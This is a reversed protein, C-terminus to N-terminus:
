SPEILQSAAIKLWSRVAILSGLIMLSLVALGGAERLVPGTREFLAVLTRTKLPGHPSTSTDSMLSAESKRHSLHGLDPGGRMGRQKQHFATAATWAVPEVETAPCSCRSSVATEAESSALARTETM